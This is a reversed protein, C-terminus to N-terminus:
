LADEDEGEREQEQEQVDEEEAAQGELDECAQGADEMADLLERAREEFDAPVLLGHYGVSGTYSFVPPKQVMVPIGEAKLASELMGAALSDQVVAVESWGEPKSVKELPRTLRKWFAKWRAAM